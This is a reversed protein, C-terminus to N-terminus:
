DRNYYIFFYNYFLRVQQLGGLVITECPFYKWIPDNDVLSCANRLMVQNFIDIYESNHINLNISHERKLNTFVDSLQDLQIGITEKSDKREIVISPDFLRQRLSNVILGCMANAFLTSNVESQISMQNDFIEKYFYYKMIFFAEVAGALFLLKIVFGKLGVYSIKVKKRKKMKKNSDLLNENDSSNESMKESELLDDDENGQQLQSLFAECKMFLLKAKPIPIELFISLILNEHQGIRIYFYIMVVFSLFIMLVSVVISTVLVKQSADIMAVLDGIFLKLSNKLSRYCGNLLNFLIFFTNSDDMKINALADKGILFAKGVIQNTADNIDFIQTFYNGNDFFTINTTKDYMLSTHEASFGFSNFIIYNHANSLLQIAHSLKTRVTQEYDVPTNTLVKLNLMQLEFVRNLIKQSYFLRQSTAQILKYSGRINGIGQLNTVEFVIGIIIFIILTLIGTIHLKINPLFRKSNANDILHKFRRRSKFFSSNDDFEEEEEEYNNNMSKENERKEDKNENNQQNEHYDNNNSDEESSREMEKKLDDLDYLRNGFLQLTHIGQGFDIKEKNEQTMEGQKTDERFKAEFKKLLNSENNANSRKSSMQNEFFHVPLKSDEIHNLRSSFPDDRYSNLISEDLRSSIKLNKTSEIRLKSRESMIYDYYNPVGEIIEGQYIENELDYKMSFSLQIPKREGPTSLRNSNNDIVELVNGIKPKKNEQSDPQPSLYNSASPQQSIQLQNILSTTPREMRVIYGQLEKTKVHIETISVVM